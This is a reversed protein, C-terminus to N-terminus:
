GRGVIPSLLSRGTRLVAYVALAVLVLISPSFLIFLIWLFVHMVAMWAPFDWLM